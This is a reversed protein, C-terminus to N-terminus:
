KVDALPKDDQLSIGTLNEFYELDERSMKSLPVAIKVGNMKHLLFKDDDTLGLFQAEVKFQKTRDTWTRVKSSDPLKRGEPLTAPGDVGGSGGGASETSFISSSVELIAADDASEDDGIPAIEDSSGREDKVELGEIALPLAELALVQLHRALHRSFGNANNQPPLPKWESCLLCSSSTFTQIPRECMDLILPMQAQTAMEPHVKDLHRTLAKESSFIAEPRAHCWNCIWERHHGNFEHQLWEARTPFPKSSDMCNESTCIYPKLDM